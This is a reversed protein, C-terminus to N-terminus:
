KEVGTAANMQQRQGSAKLNGGGPLLLTGEQDWCIPHHRQTNDKQGVAEAKNTVQM